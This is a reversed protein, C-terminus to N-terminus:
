KCFVESLQKQLKLPQRQIKKFSTSNLLQKAVNYSTSISKEERCMMQHIFLRVQKNIFIDDIALNELYSRWTTGQSASVQCAQDCSCYKEFCQKKSTQQHAKLLFIYPLYKIRNNASVNNRSHSFNSHKCLLFAVVCIASLFNIILIKKICSNEKYLKFVKLVLKKKLFIIIDFPEMKERFGFFLVCTKYLM